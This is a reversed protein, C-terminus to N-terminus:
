FSHIIFLAHPCCFLWSHSYTHTHTNLNVLSLLHVRLFGLPTLAKEAKTRPIKFCQDGPCRGDKFLPKWLLVATIGTSQLWQQEMLDGKIEWGLFDCWMLSTLSKWPSLWLTHTHIYEFIPSIQISLISINFYNRVCAEHKMYWTTNWISHTYQTDHLLYRVTTSHQGYYTQIVFSM